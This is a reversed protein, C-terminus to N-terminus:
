HELLGTWFDLPEELGGGQLNNGNRDGPGRANSQSTEVPVWRGRTGSVKFLATKLELWM